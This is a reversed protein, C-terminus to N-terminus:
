KGRENKHSLTSVEAERVLDVPVGGKELFFAPSQQATHKPTPLELGLIGPRRVKM